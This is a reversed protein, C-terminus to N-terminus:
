HRGNHPTDPAGALPKAATPGHHEVGGTLMINELKRHVAHQFDQNAGLMTAKASRKRAEAILENRAVKDDERASHMAKQPADHTAPMNSSCEHPPAVAMTHQKFAAPLNPCSKLADDLRQRIREAEAPPVDRMTELVKGCQAMFADLLKKEAEQKRAAESPLLMTYRGSRRHQGAQRMTSLM